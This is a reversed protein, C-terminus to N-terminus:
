LRACSMSLSFTFPKSEIVRTMKRLIHAGTPLEVTWSDAGEPEGDLALNTLKYKCTLKYGKSDENDFLWLYKNGSQLYYYCVGLSGVKGKKGNERIHAPVDAVSGIDQTVSFRYTYKFSGNPKFEKLVQEGHNLKFDWNVTDKKDITFQFIVRCNYTKTENIFFFNGAAFYWFIDYTKDNFTVANKRGKSKVIKIVDKEESPLEFKPTAKISIQSPATSSDRKLVVAKKSRPPVTIEYANGSYPPM